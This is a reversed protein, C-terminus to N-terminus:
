ARERDHHEGGEHSIEVQGMEDDEEDDDGGIDQWGWSKDPHDPHRTTPLGEDPLAGGAVALESAAARMTSMQDVRM